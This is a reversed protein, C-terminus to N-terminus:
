DINDFRPNVISNLFSGFTYSVGVKLEFKYDTSRERLELFIEEDTADGKPITIQNKVKSYSSSVDLSLGKALRIDIGGKVGLRNQALDHSFASASASLNADGWAQRTRYGVELRHDIRTEELEDFITPEVYDYHNLGLSYRIVFRRRHAESYPFLDVEVAPAIRIRLDLNDPKSGQARSDIGVSWQPGISRVVLAEVRWRDRTATFTDGDDLDFRTRDIAGGIELDIKWDDTVRNANFALDVETGTRQSEAEVDAELEIEFVWFNWPDSTPVLEATVQPGGGGELTLGSAQGAALLYRGLGIRLVRAMEARRDDDTADPSTTYSHRDTLAELDGRGIFELAIESGGAGTSLRTAIVHIDSAGRDTVWDVM